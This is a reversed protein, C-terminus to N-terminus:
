VSKSKITNHMTLSQLWSPVVIGVLVLGPNDCYQAKDSYRVLRNDACQAKDSYQTLRTLVKIM